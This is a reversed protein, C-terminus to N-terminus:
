SYHTLAMPLKMLGAISRCPRQAIFTFRGKRSSLLDLKCGQSNRTTPPSLTSSSLRPSADCTLTLRRPYTQVALGENSLLSTHQCLLLTAKAFIRLENNEAERPILFSNNGNEKPQINFVGNRPCEFGSYRLCSRLFLRWMNFLPHLHLFRSIASFHSLSSVSGFDRMESGGPLASNARRVRRAKGSLSVQSCNFSLAGSAFSWM